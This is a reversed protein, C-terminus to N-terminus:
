RNVQCEAEELRYVVTWVGHVDCAGRIYLGNFTCSWGVCNTILLNFVNKYVTLLGIYQKHWKSLYKPQIWESYKEWLSRLHSYPGHKGPTLVSSIYLYSLTASMLLSPLISFNPLPDFLYVKFCVPWTSM